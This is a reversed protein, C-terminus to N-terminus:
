NHQTIGDESSSLGELRRIDLVRIPGRQKIKIVRAAQLKTFM